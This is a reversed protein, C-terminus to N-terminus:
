SAANIRMLEFVRLQFTVTIAVLAIEMVILAILPGFRRGPRARFPILSWALLIILIIPAAIMAITCYTVLTAGSEGIGETMSGDLVSIIMSGSQWVLAVPVLSQIALVLYSIGSPSATKTQIVLRGIAVCIAVVGLACAAYLFGLPYWTYEALGGAIAAIGVNEVARLTNMLSIIMWGGVAGGVAALGFAAFPVIREFISVRVKEPQITTNNEIM